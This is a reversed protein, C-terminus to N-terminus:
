VFIFYVMKIINFNNLFKMLLSITWHVTENKKTAAITSKDLGIESVQHKLIM